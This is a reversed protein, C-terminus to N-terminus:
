KENGNVLKLVNERLTLYQRKGKNKPFRCYRLNKRMIFNEASRRMQKRQGSSLM